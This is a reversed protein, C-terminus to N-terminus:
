PDQNQESIRETQKARNLKPAIDGACRGTGQSKGLSIKQPLPETLRHRSSKTYNMDTGSIGVLYAVIMYQNDPWGPTALGELEQMIRVISNNEVL